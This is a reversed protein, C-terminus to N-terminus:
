YSRSTRPQPLLGILEPRPDAAPRLFGAKRAFDRAVPVIRSVRNADLWSASRTSSSFAPNRPLKQVSRSYSRLSSPTKGGHGKMIAGRKQLKEIVPGVMESGVLAAVGEKRLGIVEKGNQRYRM